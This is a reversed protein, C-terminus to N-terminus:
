LIEHKKTINNIIKDIKSHCSKCVRIYDYVDEYKGTTNAWEYRKATTTECMSCYKPKDRKKSVRYHLAKYGADDGKWSDNNVGAQNRKKAIRTKIKLVKMVRSIHAQSVKYHKAIELQSM